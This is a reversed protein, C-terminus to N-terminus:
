LLINVAGVLPSTGPHKSCYTGNIFTQMTGTWVYFLIQTHTHTHTHTHTQAHKGKKMDKHFQTDKYGTEHSSQQQSHEILTVNTKEKQWITSICKFKFRFHLYKIGWMELRHIVICSMDPPIQLIHTVCFWITMLLNWLSFWYISPHGASRHSRVCRKQWFSMTKSPANCKFDLCRSWGIVM